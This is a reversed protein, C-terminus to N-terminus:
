ASGNPGHARCDNFSVRESTLRSGDGSDGILLGRRNVQM